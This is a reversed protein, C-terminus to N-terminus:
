HFLTYTRLIKLLYKTIDMNDQICAFKIGWEKIHLSCTKSPIWRYRKGSELVYQIFSSYEPSMSDKTSLTQEYAKAYPNTHWAYAYINQQMMAYWMMYTQMYKQFFDSGVFLWNHNDITAYIGQLLWKNRTFFPIPYHEVYWAIAERMYMFWDDITNTTIGTERMTALATMDSAFCRIIKKSIYVSLKSNKRYQNQSYMEIPLVYLYLVYNSLLCCKRKYTDVYKSIM